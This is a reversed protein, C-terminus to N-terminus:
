SHIASEPKPLNIVIKMLPRVVVFVALSTTAGFVFGALVDFPYHVGIYVRSFGILCALLLGVFGWTRGAVFWLATAIAMANSAHNSPFGFRGACGALIQVFQTEQHCPRERAFFPKLWEFALLDALGACLAAVCIALLLRRHGKKLAYFLIGSVLVTYFINNSLMEMLLNVIHNTANRNILNFINKDLILFYDM